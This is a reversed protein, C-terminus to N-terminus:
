KGDRHSARSLAFFAVIIVLLAVFGLLQWDVSSIGLRVWESRTHVEGDYEYAVAVQINAEGSASERAMIEKTQVVSNGAEWVDFLLQEDGNYSFRDSGPITVKSKVNYVRLQGVNEITYSLKAIERPAISSPVIGVNKLVLLAPEVNVEARADGSVAEYKGTEPATFSVATSFTGVAMTPLTVTKAQGAFEVPVEHQSLPASATYTVTFDEGEFVHKSNLELTAAGALALMLSIALFTNLKPMKM